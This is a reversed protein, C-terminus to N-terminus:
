SKKRLKMVFAFNGLLIFFIILSHIISQADMGARAQKLLKKLQYTQNVLEEYESGGKLGGVIGTIQGTRWFPYMGSAMVATCASGIKIGTREHGYAIWYDVYSDDHLDVMYPFDGLTRINKLIELENVSRGYYDEKCTQKFDEGLGIIMAYTGPKYGLYCFDKGYVLKRGVEKEYMEQIKAFLTEGIGSALDLYCIGVVKLGRLLSHLIIAKGMPDMEPTSAPEYDVAILIPAGAPLKEIEDFVGRVDPTISVPLNLPQVTPIAIALAIILYVIRRDISLLKDLNIRM